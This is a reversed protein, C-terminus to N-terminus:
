GLMEPMKVKQPNRRLVAKSVDPRELRLFVGWASGYSGLAVLMEHRGAKAALPVIADEPRAPNTGAPDRFIEKGDYWVKVPGDYGLLLRLKMAAECRFDFAYYVLSEGAMGPDLHRDCLSTEFKRRQLKLGRPYELKSINVGPLVKSVRLDTIFRTMARTVELAMPLPGFAPISRGAADTINCYPDFGKGYQLSGRAADIAESTHIIAKDGDLDVRYHGNTNMETEVHFGAPLGASKLSGVLNRFRVVIDALKSIPNPRITVDRVEIPPSGAKKGERLVQMAEACRRGLVHQGTGSIHILDDMPLDIAPVVALDKIQGPLRRQQERILDWLEGGPGRMTVRSIQVAVVPLRPNRFDRRMSQVLTKMRQTYCAAAKPDADSCGQYWFVGAVAGGNKRFRRCMAGYLSKGGEKKLAPDWQSMSTGGHACAILGQPVGTRKYLDQGFAVGPGVGAYRGPQVRSVDPRGGHVPDVACWLTHLPDVAVDWEDTMYFARVKNVPRLKDKLWGIGEMNSQGALIWVDGVLVDAVALEALTRGKDSIRLDIDYPGGVKLGAITGAFKGRKATGVKKWNWGPLTKGKARVRAEVAGSVRCAGAFAARSQNSRTRQLVMRSFLGESM